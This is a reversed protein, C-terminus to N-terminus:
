RTPAPSRIIHAAVAVICGGGSTIEGLAGKEQVSEASSNETKEAAAYGYDM